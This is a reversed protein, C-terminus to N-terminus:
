TESSPLPDTAFKVGVQIMGVDNAGDGIALTVADAETTRVLQVM